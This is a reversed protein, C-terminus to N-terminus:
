NKLIGAYTLAAGMLSTNKLFEGVAMGSPDGHIIAPINLGLLFILLLLSLLLCALRAKVNIIISIGALILGLGAFYVLGDAIPWGKLMMQAMLHAKMFHLIGFFIFPVAFIFRGLSSLFKM